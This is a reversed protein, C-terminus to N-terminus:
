PTEKKADVSEIYAMSAHAETALALAVANPMTVVDGNLEMEPVNKDAWRERPV